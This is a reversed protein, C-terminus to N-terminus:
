SGALGWHYLAPSGDAVDTVDVAYLKFQEGNYTATLVAKDLVISSAGSSRAYVTVRAGNADDTIAVGPLPTVLGVPSTSSTCSLPAGSDGESDLLGGGAARVEVYICASGSSSAWSLDFSAASLAVNGPLPETFGFQVYNSTSFSAPLSSTTLTLSDGTFAVPSSTDIASGSSRDTVSFAPTVREGPFIQGTSITTTEPYDATFIAGTGPTGFMTLGVILAVAIATGIVDLRSGRAVARESASM